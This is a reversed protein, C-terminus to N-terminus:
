SEDVAADWIEQCVHYGHICCEIEQTDMGKVSESRPVHYRQIIYVYTHVETATCTHAGGVVEQLALYTTPSILIQRFTQGLVFCLGNAFNKDPSFKTM